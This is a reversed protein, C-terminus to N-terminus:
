LQAACLAQLLRRFPHTGGGRGGRYALRDDGTALNHSHTSPDHGPASRDSNSLALGARRLIIPVDASDDEPGEPVLGTGPIGAQLLLAQRALERLWACPSGRRGRQTPLEVRTQGRGVCIARIRSSHFRQGARGRSHAIATAISIWRSMWGICGGARCIAAAFRGKTCADGAILGWSGGLFPRV